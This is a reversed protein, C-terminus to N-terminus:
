AGRTLQWYVVPPICAILGAALLEFLADIWLGPHIVSMADLTAQATEPTANPGFIVVNVVMAVPLLSLAAIALLGFLRGRNGRTLTASRQLADFPTLREVVAAPIAAVWATLLWLLTGIVSGRVLWALPHASALLILIVGTMLVVGMVLAVLLGPRAAALGARVFGSLSLHRGAMAAITGVSVASLFLMFFVALFTQVVTGGSSNDDILAHAAIGPLTLLIFGSVVIAAFEHWFNLLIARCAALIDFSGPAPM